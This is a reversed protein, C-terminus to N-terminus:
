GTNILLFLFWSTLQGKIDFKVETDIDGLVNRRLANVKKYKERVSIQLIHVVTVGEMFHVGSSMSTGGM